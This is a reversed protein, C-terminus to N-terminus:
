VPNTMRNWSIVRYRIMELRPPALVYEIVQSYVLLVSICILNIFKGFIRKKLVKQLIKYGFIYIEYM